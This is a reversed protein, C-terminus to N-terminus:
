TLNFLILLLFSVPNGIAYMNQAVLIDESNGAPMPRQKDKPANVWVVAVDKDQDYGALEVEYTSQDGLIM